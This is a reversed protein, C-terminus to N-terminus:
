IHLFKFPVSLSLYHANLLIWLPAKPITTRSMTAPFHVSIALFNVVPPLFWIDSVDGIIKLDTAQICNDLGTRAM